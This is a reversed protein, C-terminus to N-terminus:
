IDVWILNTNAPANENVTIKYIDPLDDGDLWLSNINAPSLSGVYVDYGEGGQEYEIWESGNYRYRIKTDLTQTTWGLEPSPYTTAIDAFTNIYPKWVLITSIAANNANTAATTASETASEAFTGQENAYDGQEKAYDGQTNAYDTADIVNSIVEKFSIVVQWYDTNTPLTGIPPKTNCIYITKEDDYYVSDRPYYQTSDNFNERYFIGSALFKWKSEDTPPNGQTVLATCIYTSGNYFVINNGTYVTDNDYNGKNQYPKISNIFDLLTSNIEGTESLEDYIRSAPYMIIGRGYYQNITILEAEKDSHFVIQGTTYDVKFQNVSTIPQNNKIEFMDQIQVKYYVDPIQNLTIKANVIKHQENEIKISIKQNANDTNWQIFIPDLYDQIAL